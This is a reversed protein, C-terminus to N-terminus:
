VMQKHYRGTVTHSRSLHLSANTHPSIASSSGWIYLVCLVSEQLPFVVQLIRDMISDRPSWTVTYKPDSSVWATVWAPIEIVAFTTVILVLCARLTNPDRIVLHLRKYLVLSQGTVMMSWGTEICFVDWIWPSSPVWWQLLYGLTHLVTGWSTILLCWFYFGQRKKFHRFILVNTELVLYITIGIFSAVWGFLARSMPPPSGARLTDKWPSTQVM